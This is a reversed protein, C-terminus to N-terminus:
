LTPAMALAELGDRERHHGSKPPCSRANATPTTSFVRAAVVTLVRARDASLNDFRHPVGRPLTASMGVFLRAHQGGIWVDLEGELMYIFEDTDAHVHAPPGGAPKVITVFVAASDGLDASAAKELMLNGLINMARGKDPKRIHVQM